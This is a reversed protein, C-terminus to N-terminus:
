AHTTGRREYYKRRADAQAVRRQISQIRAIDRGWRNWIVGAYCAKKQPTRTQTETTRDHDEVGEHTTNM